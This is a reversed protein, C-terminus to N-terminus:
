NKEKQLDLNYEDWVKKLIEYDKKDFKENSLAIGTAYYTDPIGLKPQYQIYNRWMKKDIMLDNDTDILWHPNCMKAITARNSMIELVDESTDALDNLRLIDVINALYPNATHTILVSDEKIEKMYFYINEIYAKVLELGWIPKTSKILTNRNDIHEYCKKIDESIIAWKDVLINRFVGRESPINQTFDIKFGDANLCDPGDSLMINIQEKLIKKYVKSSPDAAIIHNELTLCAKKPLGEAIVPSYWLLVKRGKEHQENIFQRMNTWRLPHPKALAVKKSWFCDIIVTGPNIGESELISLYKRYFTESSYDGANVWNQNEHYDHDKRYDYRQQGWGCFIPKKWWDPITKNNITVYENKKLFNIYNQIAGNEKENTFSLVLRPSEFQGKVKTHGEFTLSLYFCDGGNYDFSMFNNEGPNAAIGCGIWQGNVCLAFCFPPPSLWQQCSLSDSKEPSNHIIGKNWDFRPSYYKSFFGTAGKTSDNRNLFYHIYDIKKNQGKITCYYEIFNHSCLFIYKKEDWTNSNSQFIIEIKEKHNITLLTISNIREEKKLSDISSAISAKYVKNNNAFVTYKFEILDFNITYKDGSIIIESNEKKIIQM